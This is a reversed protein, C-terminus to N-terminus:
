RNLQRAKRANLAKRDKQASVTFSPTRALARWDANAGGNFPQGKHHNEGELPRNKLMM